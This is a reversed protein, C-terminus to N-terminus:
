ARPSAADRNREFVFEACGSGFLGITKPLAFSRLQKFGLASIREILESAGATEYPYGGLWDHVDHSFHMGRLEFYNRVYAIPNEGFCAKRALLAAMFFQRVLWQMPRPARVYFKKEAKWLPDCTTAAYIAIALRGGPRVLAAAREIARWMDGTHHLVGWSYVVDFQGLVAATADFISVVQVTWRSDPAHQALVRRTTSVSNEDIDIATVSAAGLSLAALSHLGSGCGIDLLSQDALGDPFLKKMGVVASDIRKQDITESYKEWNEGFEFHTERETLSM